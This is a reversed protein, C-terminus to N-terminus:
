EGEECELCVGEPTMESNGHELPKLPCCEDEVFRECCELTKSLEIIDQLDMELHLEHHAECACDELERTCGPEPPDYYSPSPGLYNM